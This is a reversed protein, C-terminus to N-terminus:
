RALKERLKQKARYLRNEVQRVPLELEAAIERPKQGDYYRRLLIERESQELQEVAANLRQRQEEALVEEEVGLEAALAGDELPLEQRKQIARYRDIAKTRTLVTLWVKLKGRGADFKEPHQWLHIFADAVCEEIDEESASTKLVNAAVTWLLRSYKEIVQNMASEDGQRIAYIIKEDQM